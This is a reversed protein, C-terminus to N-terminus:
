YRYMSLIQRTESSNFGTAVWTFVPVFAPSLYKGGVELGIRFAEIPVAADEASVQFAKWILQNRNSSTPCNVYNLFSSFLDLLGLEDATWKAWQASEKLLKIEDSPVTGNGWYRPSYYRWNLFNRWQGSSNVPDIISIVTGIPGIISTVQELPNGIAGAISSIEFQGKPDILAVPDSGVYEYANTGAGLGIPDRSLWRRTRPDDARYQTLYLGSDAHYLMGAYRFHTLPGTAPALTPSGYPDYNYSQAM